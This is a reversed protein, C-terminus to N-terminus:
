RGKAGDVGSEAGDVKRGVWKGGWGTWYAFTLRSVVRAYTRFQRLDFRQKAISLAYKGEVPKVNVRVASHIYCVHTQIANTEHQCSGVFSRVFSRSTHKYNTYTNRILHTAHAALPHNPPPSEQNHSRLHRRFHIKVCM